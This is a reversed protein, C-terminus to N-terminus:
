QQELIYLCTKKHLPFNDEMQELLLNESVVMCLILMLILKVVLSFIMMIMVDKRQFGM